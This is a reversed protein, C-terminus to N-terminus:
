SQLGVNTDMWFFKTETKISESPTKQKVNYAHQIASHYGAVNSYSQQQVPELPEMTNKDRKIMIYGFFEIFHEPIILDLNVGGFNDIGEPTMEENNLLNIENLRLKETAWYVFKRWRYMYAKCTNDVKRGDQVAQARELDTDEPIENENM